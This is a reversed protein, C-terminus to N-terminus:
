KRRSYHQEIMSGCQFIASGTQRYLGLECKRNSHSKAVIRASELYHNTVVEFRASDLEFRLHTFRAIAIKRKQTLIISKRLIQTASLHLM